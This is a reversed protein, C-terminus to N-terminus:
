DIVQNRVALTATFVKRQARDNYPGAQVTQEPTNLLVYTQKDIDTGYEDPARSLLAIQVTMVNNWDEVDEASVYSDVRADLEAESDIGYLVELREIGEAIEDSKEAGGTKRYLSLREPADLPPNEPQITSRAIYYIVTDVPVITAGAVFRHLLDNSVNGPRDGIASTSPEVAAHEITGSAPDNTVQFFARASCDSVMVTDSPKIPMPDVDEVEFPQTSNQQSTVVKVARVERRPIRLVLVDGIPRPTPDFALRDTDLGPAWEVGTGNFGLLPKVFDWRIDVLNEEEEDEDGEVPPFPEITANLKFDIARTTGDMNPRACANFSTARVDSAIQELAYRGNEQIRSLRETTEYSVRSSVFLAVVGTLLLVSIGLAVMLEVLSFGSVRNKITIVQM